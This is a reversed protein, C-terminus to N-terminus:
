QWVNYKAIDYMKELLMIDNISRPPTIKVEVGKLNNIYCQVIAIKQMM